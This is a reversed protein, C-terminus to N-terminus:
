SLKSEALAKTLLDLDEKATNFADKKIWRQMNKVCRMVDRSRKHPVELKNMAATLDSVVHVAAIERFTAKQLRENTRSAFSELAALSEFRVPVAVYKMSHFYAVGSKGLASYEFPPKGLIEEATERWATQMFTEPGVVENDSDRQFHAERKGGIFHLMTSGGGKYQEALLM